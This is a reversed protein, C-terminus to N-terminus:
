FTRYNIKEHDSRCGFCNPKTTKKFANDCVVGGESVQ